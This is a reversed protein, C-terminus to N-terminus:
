RMKPYLCRRFRAKVASVVLRMSLRSGNKWAPCTVRRHTGKYLEPCGFSVKRERERGGVM